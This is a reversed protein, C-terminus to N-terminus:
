RYKRDIREHEMSLMDFMADVDEETAIKNPDAGAFMGEQVRDDLVVDSGIEITVDLGAKQLTKRLEGADKAIDDDSLGQSVLLSREKPIDMWHVALGDMAVMEEYDTLLVYRSPDSEVLIESVYYRGLNRKVTLRYIEFGTWSRYMHLTRKKDMYGMWKAGMDLWPLGLWLLKYDAKNLRWYSNLKIVHPKLMPKFSALAHENPVYQNELDRDEWEIQVVRPEKDDSM